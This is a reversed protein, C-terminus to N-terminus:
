ACAAGASRASGRGARARGARPRRAATFSHYGPAPVREALREGSIRRRRCAFTRRDPPASRAGCSSPIAANWAWCRCFSPAHCNGSRRPLSAIQRAARAAQELKRVIGTMEPLRRKSAGCCTWRPANPMSLTTGRAAAQAGEPDRSRIREFLLDIEAMSGAAPGAARLVHRAAPQHAVATGAAHGSWITAVALWCSKTSTTSPPWCAPKTGGKAQRHLADVAKEVSRYRRRQGPPRNTPPSARWCPARLAYVPGQAAKETIRIVTPGRSAARYLDPTGGGTHAAGRAAHQPQHGAARLAGTRALTRRGEHPRGHHVFAPIGGRAFAPHRTERFRATPIPCPLRQPDGRCLQRGRPAASGPRRPLTFVCYIGPGTAGFVARPGAAAVFGSLSQARSDEM